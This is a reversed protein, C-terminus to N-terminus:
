ENTSNIMHPIPKKFLKMTNEQNFLNNFENKNVFSSQLSQDLTDNQFQGVSNNCRHRSNQVKSGMCRAKKNSNDIFNAQKQTVGMQNISVSNIWISLANSGLYIFPENGIDNHSEISSFNVSNQLNDDTSVIDKDKNLSLTGLVSKSKRHCNQHNQKTTSQGEQNYFQENQTYKHPTKNQKIKQENIKNLSMNMTKSNAALSQNDKQISKIDFELKLCKTELQAKQKDLKQVENYLDKNKLNLQEERKKYESLQINKDEIQKCTEDIKQKQNQNQIIIKELELDKEKYKKELVKIQDEYQKAHEIQKQLLSKCQNIDNEYAEQKQKFKMESIKQNKEFEKKQNFILVNLINKYYQKKQTELYTQISQNMKEDIRLSEQQSRYSNQTKYQLYSQLTFLNDFERIDEFQYSQLKSEIYSIYAQCLQKIRDEIQHQVINLQDQFRSNFMDIMKNRFPQLEENSGICQQNFKENLQEIQANKFSNIKIENNCIVENQLDESLIKKCHYLSEQVLKETITRSHSNIVNNWASDIIPLQGQNIQQLYSDILQYLQIGNLFNGKVQVPKIKSFIKNKVQNAQKIFKPRFTLQVGKNILQLDEEKEVPTVLPACDRDPFFLKFLKRIQNKRQVNDSLGKQEELSNELYQKASIDNGSSDKLQLGFDRLIWLFRKYFYFQCYIKFFDLQQAQREPSPQNNKIALQKLMNIVIGLTSLSSEDINGVSNFCLYSSIMMAIVLITQDHNSDEDIGGLGESDIVLIKQNPFDSNTSSLAKSYVWLGALKESQFQELFTRGENTIEYKGQNKKILLIAQNQSKIM